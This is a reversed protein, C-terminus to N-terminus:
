SLRLNQAKLTRRIAKHNPTTKAVLAWFNKSHNFEKLHCLEHVIIYDRIKEPLFLLRYNFNLNKKQSCSGWITKQDRINIKKYRFKYFVNFYELREKILSRAEEKYKLYDGRTYKAFPPEKYNKFYSINKLLWDAKDKLFKSMTRESVKRPVTLVVDGGPYVTLRMWRAKPNERVAYVIRENKILIEKEEM